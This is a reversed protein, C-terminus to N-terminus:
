IRLLVPITLVIEVDFQFTKNLFTCFKLHSKIAKNQEKISESCGRKKGDM